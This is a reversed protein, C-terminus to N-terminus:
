MKFVLLNPNFIFILGLALLIFGAILRAIIRHKAKIKDIKLSTIIIVFIILEDILFFLIYVLTYLVQELITVNNIYLIENFMSVLGFSSSLEVLSLSIILLLLGIMVFKSNVTNNRSILPRLSFIGGFIIILLIIFCVIYENLIVALNPFIILSIFYIISSNLIFSSGLLLMRKRNNLSILIAILFVLIWITSPNFGDISGLILANLMLSLDNTDINGIIPLTITYNGYNEIFVNVNPDNVNVEYTPLDLNELEAVKDIYGFNSFYEIAGIFTKMSHESSFGNFTKNGIITFPVSTVKTNYIESVQSLILSNNPDSIEYKYVRINEYKEELKDLLEIEEKCHPCTSSHFLYINVLNRSDANVKPVFILILTLVILLKKIKSLM